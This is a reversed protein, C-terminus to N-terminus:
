GRQSTTGPFVVARNVTRVLWTARPGCTESNNTNNVTETLAFEGDFFISVSFPDRTNSERRINLIGDDDGGSPISNDFNPTERRTFEAGFKNSMGSVDVGDRYIDHIERTRTVRLFSRPPVRSFTKSSTKHDLFHPFDRRDVRVECVM